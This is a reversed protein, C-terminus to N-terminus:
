SHPLVHNKELLSNLYHLIIQLDVVTRYDPFRSVTLASQTLSVLHRIQFYTLKLGIEKCDRKLIRKTLRVAASDKTRVVKKKAIIQM